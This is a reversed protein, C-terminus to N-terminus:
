FLGERKLSLYKKGGIIVHDLVDIGMIEGAETLRKTLKIDDESAEPDGSPHNHVFIVSIVNDYSCEVCEPM